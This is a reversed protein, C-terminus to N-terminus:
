NELDNKNKLQSAMADAKWKKYNDFRSTREVQGNLWEYLYGDERWLYKKEFQEWTIPKSFPASRKKKLKPEFSEENKADM